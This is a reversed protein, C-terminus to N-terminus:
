LPSGYKPTLTNVDAGHDLLLGATVEKQRYSAVQLARDGEGDDRNIDVGRQLLM